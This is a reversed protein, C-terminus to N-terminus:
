LEGELFVLSSRGIITRVNVIDYIYRILVDKRGMIQFRDRDEFLGRYRSASSYYYILM